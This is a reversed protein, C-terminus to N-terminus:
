RVFCNIFMLYFKLVLEEVVIQIVLNTGYYSVYTCEGAFHYLFYCFEYELSIQKIKSSAQLVQSDSSLTIGLLM